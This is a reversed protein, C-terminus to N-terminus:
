ILLRSEELGILSELRSRLDKEGKFHIACFGLEAAAEVNKISDDIFISKRPDLQYREILIEYIRHDPKNVKEEGSVVIGKFKKLFAYYKQARPFTEASWNTLAYLNVRGHKLIDQFLEEMGPITGNLMEEWQEFYARIHAEYKPYKKILVEEGEKFSRGADQAANWAGNCVEKLFWDMEEADEFRKQYMYTPNWNVLVGGLDFVITDIGPSNLKTKM